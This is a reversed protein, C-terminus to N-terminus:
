ISKEIEKSYRIKQLLETNLKINLKELCEDQKRLKSGLAGVMLCVALVSAMKRNRKIERKLEHYKEM